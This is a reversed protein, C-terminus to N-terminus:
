NFYHILGAIMHYVMTAIFSVAVIVMANKFSKTASCGFMAFIVGVTAGVTLSGARELDYNTIVLMAIFWCLVLVISMIVEHKEPKKLTNDKVIMTM